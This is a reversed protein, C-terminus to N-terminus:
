KDLSFEEFKKKVKKGKRNKKTNEKNKGDIANIIPEESLKLVISESVANIDSINFKSDSNEFPISDSGEKKNNNEKKIFGNGKILANFIKSFKVEKEETWGKKFADTIDFYKYNNKENLEFCDVLKIQIISCDNDKYNKLIDNTSLPCDNKNKERNKEKVYFLPIEESFNFKKNIESINDISFSPDKKIKNEKEEKKSSENFEEDENYFEEEAYFDPENIENGKKTINSTNLDQTQNNKKDKKNLFDKVEKKQRESPINKVNKNNVMSISFEEYSNNQYKLRNNNSKRIEEEFDKEYSMKNENNKSNRKNKNYNLDEEEYFEEEEM